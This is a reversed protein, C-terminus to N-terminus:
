GSWNKIIRYTHLIIGDGENNKDPSSIFCLLSAEKLVGQKVRAFVLSSENWGVNHKNNM